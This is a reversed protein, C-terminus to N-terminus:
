RSLMGGQVLKPTCDNSACSCIYRRALFRKKVPARRRARAVFFGEVHASVRTRGASSTLQRALAPFHESESGTIRGAFRRGPFKAARAECGDRAFKRQNGRQRTTERPM